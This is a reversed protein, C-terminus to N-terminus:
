DLRRLVIDRGHATHWRLTSDGDFSLQMQDVAGDPRHIALVADQKDGRSVEYQGTRPLETPIAVTVSSGTFEFSTGRVWGIAAPLESADLNTITDGIWRGELRREVPHSCASAGLVALLVSFWPKM